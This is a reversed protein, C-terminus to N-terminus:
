ARTDRASSSISAKSGGGRGAYRRRGSFGYNIGAPKSGAPPAGQGVCAKSRNFRRKRSRDAGNSDSFVANRSKDPVFFDDLPRPLDVLVPLIMMKPTRSPFKPIRALVREDNVRSLNLLGQEPDFGRDEGDDRDDTGEPPIKEGYVIDVFRAPNKALEGDHAQLAKLVDGIAKFREGDRALREAIDADADDDPELVVPVIIYGRLKGKDNRMVRGVAQVIDIQSKRPDLFAVADLAPVDVGESFLRVNTIMRCEDGLHAEQLTRLEEIREDAKHTADLHAARTKMAKGDDGEAKIRRTVAGLVREDNFAKQYFRSRARNNAFALVRHLLPGVGGDAQRARGNIALATGMIRGYEEESVKVGEAMEELRERMDPRLAGKELCMVIVRYESLMGAELAQRFSLRFAEPGYDDHNDMDTVVYGRSRLSTMSAPTYVRPTATMYLRKRARLREPDHILQFDIEAAGASKGGPNGDPRGASRAAGSSGASAPGDGADAGGYRAAAERAAAEKAAAKRAAGEGKTRSVGTTRHAEDAIALDFDPAGYRKDQAAAVNGLSHYTCFLVKTPPPEGPKDEAGSLMRAIAAPRTLVDCTLESPGIDEKGKENKGGATADSCVVAAKLRRRTHALWEARAGAALAISPVAFLIAGGDPVLEEAIRLSTFTKGSGCAMILRCRDHVIGGDAPPGILTKRVAAIAQEQQPLPRRVPREEDEGLMELHAFQQFHTAKPPVPVGEIAARANPSWLCTSVVRRQAFVPEGTEQDTKGSENLFKDLEARQLRKRPDHCKCQIAMLRGDVLEAVADIGLDRGWREPWDDWRWIGAVEFQPEQRLLRIVLNEFWRGKEAESRSERRIRDLAEGFTRPSGSLTFGNGGAGRAAKDKTSDAAGTPTEDRM